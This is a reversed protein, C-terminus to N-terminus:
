YPSGQDVKKPADAGPALRRLVLTFTHADKGKGITLEIKKGPKENRLMERFGSLSFTLAPKGNVAMIIEGVKLGAQDAPGGAMVSKVVFGDQSANVWMGSRDYDMPTDYDKNPKLYLHQTAYDFTVTFHRLIEGGINGAIYKDAGAGQTATSLEVVPDHVTVSGIKLIGGRAVRGSASGGVGWGIVREASAQYRKVLDHAKVFPGWLTLAARSGTDIEFEGTLGDISGKVGPIQGLFTFPVATGAGAAHFDGPRMLTLKRDAYDIAVVFRKFVEYGVLGDFPTGEVASFGPLPLVGFVQDHLTVKGGLTLDKVKGLGTNVSKKGVGGGQLAGKSAIGASKAAQPTLINEGGTDLMFHLPHGNVAVQIYIHNNILQFPITAENGGDVFAFDNLKQSPMSFDATTVPVNVTAKDLQVVTDYQKKGNSYRQHFALKIGEVTRYDSYYTTQHVGAQGTGEVTRAILHTAANIWLEFARGGRPTIDLVEYTSGGDKHIGARTIKAPWRQPFWWARATQYAGTASSQKGPPSDAPAVEGDPSVSWGVTGDFGQAGSVPGLDYHSVSRGTRLDALETATGSLGGTEIDGVVRLTYVRNWADGGSAAKSQALIRTASPPPAAALAAAPMLLVILLCLRRM